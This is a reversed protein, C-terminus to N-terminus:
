ISSVVVAVLNFTSHAIICPALSGTREYLIAFVVGAIFTPFLILSFGHLLAFILSSVLIGARVGWKSRLFGYLVGRIFLEEVIPALIVLGFATILWPLSFPTLNGAEHNPQVSIDPLSEGMIFILPVMLLIALLIPAIKAILGWWFGLKFHSKFDEVRLAFYDAGPWFRFHHHAIMVALFAIVKAWFHSVAPFRAFLLGTSTLVLLYLGALRFIDGLGWFAERSSKTINIEM